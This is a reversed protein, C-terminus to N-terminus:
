QPGKHRLTFFFKGSKTNKDPVSNTIHGGKNKRIDLSSGIPDVNKYIDDTEDVESSKPGM